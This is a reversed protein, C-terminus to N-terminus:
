RLRKSLHLIYTRSVPRGEALKEAHSYAQSLPAEMKHAREAAARSPYIIGNGLSTGIIEEKYRWAWRPGGRLRLDLYSIIGREKCWAAVKQRWLWAGETNWSFNATATRDGPRFGIFRVLRAGCDDRNRARVHKSIYKGVYRAIGEENSKIPLFETRGFGYKKATKRWFEWEARLEPGASRYVKREIEDFKVGRRVDADGAVVLHFHLRQSTQREVTAIARRYRDKLIGTNLSHFRKQAERIDTVQDAFTLTLFGLKEIGYLTAMEKIETALVHAM